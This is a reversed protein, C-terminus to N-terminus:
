CGARTTNPAGGGWDHTLLGEKADVVSSDLGHTYLLVSDVDALKDRTRPDQICPQLLRAQLYSLSFLDLLRHQNRRQTLVMQSPWTFRQQLKTQESHELTLCDSQSVEAGTMSDYIRLSLTKGRACKYWCLSITRPCTQPNKDINYSSWFCIFIKEQSWCGKKKVKWSWFHYLHWFNLM